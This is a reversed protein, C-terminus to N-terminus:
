FLKLNMAFSLFDGTSEAEACASGGRSVLVGMVTPGTYFGVCQGQCMMVVWPGCHVDPKMRPVSCEVPKFLHIHCADLM